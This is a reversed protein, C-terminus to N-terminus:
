PKVKALAARAVDGAHGDPHHGLRWVEMVRTLAVALEDRQQTLTANSNVREVIEACHMGLLLGAFQDEGAIMALGPSVKSQRLRLESM